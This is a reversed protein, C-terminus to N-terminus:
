SWMIEVDQLLTDGDYFKRLFSAINRALHSLDGHIQHNIAAIAERYANFHKSQLEVNLACRERELDCESNIVKLLETMYCALCKWLVKSRKLRTIGIANLVSQGWDDPESAMHLLRKTVHIFFVSNEPSQDSERFSVTCLFGWLLVVKQENKETMKASNLREFIQGMLTLRKRADRESRFSVTAYLHLCHLAEQGILAPRVLAMYSWMTELLFKWGTNSTVTSNRFCGEITAELLCSLPESAKRSMAIAQLLCPVAAPYSIQWLTFGEVLLKSSSSDAEQPIDRAMEVLINLGEKPFNEENELIKQVDKLLERFIGQFVKQGDKSNFYEKSNNVSMMLFKLITKVYVLRKGAARSSKADEGLLDIRSVRRLLKWVAKELCGAPLNAQLKACWASGAALCFVDLTEGFAANDVFEWPFSEEVEQLVPTMLQGYAAMLVYLQFLLSIMECKEVYNWGSQHRQLWNTWSVQSLADSVFMMSEESHRQSFIRLTMNFIEVNPDFCGWPLKKLAGHVAVTIYSPVLSSTFNREYWTFIHQLIFEGGPVSDIAFVTCRVFGDLIEEPSGKTSESWPLLVPNVVDVQNKLWNSPSEARRDNLIIPILWMEYVDRICPWIWDSIQHASTGPFAQIMAITGAQLVTSMFINFVRYLDKFTPYLGYIGFKKREEKFFVSLWRITEAIDVQSLIKQERAFKNLIELVEPGSTNSKIMGVEALNFLVNVLDMLIDRTLGFNTFGEFLSKLISNYSQPFRHRLLQILHSRFIKDNIASNRQRCLKLGRLILQTLDNRYSDQPERMKLWDTVRFRSIIMAIIEQDNWNGFSAITFEYMALFERPPLHEPTFLDILLETFFTGKLMFEVLKQGEQPLHPDMFRKSSRIVSMTLSKTPPYLTLFASSSRLTKYLIEFSIRCLETCKGEKWHGCNEYLTRLIQEMRLLAKLLEEQLPKKMASMFKDCKERNSAIKREVDAVTKIRNETIRVDASGLCENKRLLNTCTLSRYYVVQENVLKGKVLKGFTTHLQYLEKMDADYSKAYKEMVNFDNKLMSNTFMSSELYEKPSPLNIASKLPEQARRLTPCEYSMLQKEIKQSYNQSNSKSLTGFSRPIQRGIKANWDEYSHRQAELITGLDIYETWEQRYFALRRVDMDNIEKGELWKEFTRFRKALNRHFESLIEDIEGESEALQEHYVRAQEMQGRIRKMILENAHYLRDIVHAQTSTVRTLYVGFFRQCLVVLMTHRTPCSIILNALKSFVLDSSQSHPTGLSNAVKKVLGDLNREGASQLSLQQVFEHWFGTEAEFVDYQVDFVMLGLWITTVPLYPILGIPTPKSLFSSISKSPLATIKAETTLFVFLKRAEFWAEPFTFAFNLVTDLIYLTNWCNRFDKNKTLCQLWLLIIPTPSHLGFKQYDMCQSVIMKGFLEIIGCVSKAFMMDITMRTYSNDVSFIQQLLSSFAPNQLSEPSALFLPFVVQLCRLATVHDNSKFLVEINWFSYTCIQPISHGRQTLLISLYIALPRNEKIGKWVENVHELEPIESLVAEPSYIVQWPAERDIAHLKLVSIMKWCWTLFNTVTSKDTMLSKVNETIFNSSSSSNRVAARYIILAMRTHLAGQLFLRGDQGYGWNMNNIVIRAMGNECSELSSELLWQELVDIVGPGPTWKEMPLRKLLYTGYTNGQFQLIIDSILEPCEDTLNTILDRAIKSCDHKTSGRFFGIELLDSVISQRLTANVSAMSALTQLLYHLDEQSVDNAEFIDVISYDAEHTKAEIMEEASSQGFHPARMKQYLDGICKHTLQHFPLGVLYQWTGATRSMYIHDCSRVLLQEFEKQVRARIMVDNVATAAQFVNYVSSAYQVCHSVLRALRKTFQRYKETNYTCLGMALTEVLFSAFAFFQLVTHATIADSRVRYKGECQPEMKTALSFIEKWPIQNFIAVLDNERLVLLDVDEEGDSDVFSWEGSGSANHKDMRSWCLLEDLFESRKMVPLLITQLVTLSHQVCVHNQLSETSFGGVPIQIMPAAWSVIGPPCRLVHYLIFMHDPWTAVDLLLNVLITLWKKVNGTFIKDMVSRRLFFFLVSISRRLDDSGSIFEQSSASSHQKQIRIIEEDIMMKFLAGVSASKVYKDCCTSRLDALNNLVLELVNDNFIAKKFSIVTSVREGDSCTGTFRQSVEIISWLKEQNAECVERLNQADIELHRSESLSQMYEQLCHFLYNDNRLFDPKLEMEIFEKELDKAFMLLNNSYLDRLQATTFPEINIELGQTKMFPLADRKLTDLTPYLQTSTERVMPPHPLAEEELLPASPIIVVEEPVTESIEEVPHTEEVISPANEVEQVDHQIEQAESVTDETVLAHPHHFEEAIPQIVEEKSLEEPEEPLEISTKTEVGDPAEGLIRAKKKKKTRPKELTAM